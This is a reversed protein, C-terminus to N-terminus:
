DSEGAAGTLEEDDTMARAIEYWNVSSLAYSLLDGFVGAVEPMNEEHDEKLRDALALAARELRTFLYDAKASRWSERTAERWYLYSGEENDIWLKVSWTEYNTWGEHRTDAM